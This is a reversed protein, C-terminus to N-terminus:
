VDKAFASDEVCHTRMKVEVSGVLLNEGPLTGPTCELRQASAENYPRDM